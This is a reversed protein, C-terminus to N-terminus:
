LFLGEVQTRSAIAIIKGPWSENYQLPMPFRPSPKTKGAPSKHTAFPPPPRLTVKATIENMNM